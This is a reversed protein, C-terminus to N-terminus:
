WMRKFTITHASRVVTEFGGNSQLTDGISRIKDRAEEDTLGYLFLDIDSGAFMSNPEPHEHDDSYCPLTPEGDAENGDWEEATGGGNYWRIVNLREVERVRDARAGSLYAKSALAHPLPLLPGLCAGGAMLVGSWDMDTLAGRTFFKLQERFAIRSHVIAPDGDVVKRHQALILPADVASSLTWKALEAKSRFPKLLLASEDPRDLTTEKGAAFYARAATEEAFAAPELERAICEMVYARGDLLDELVAVLPTISYYEAEAYLAMREDDSAPLSRDRLWAKPAVYSFFTRHLIFSALL